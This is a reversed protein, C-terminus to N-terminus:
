EEMLATRWAATTRQAIDEKRRQDRLILHDITKQGQPGTAVYDFYSVPYLQGTRHVRDESQVRLDYFYSHSIYIVTHCATLNLGKHGASAAVFAPAPPTTRPDLLRTADARAAESQGGTIAGVYQYRLRLERVLRNLEPKFRCWMLLKLQPDLVLLEEIRTLLDDLKERGVEVLPETTTIPHDLLGVLVEEDIALGGLFGSTIQALRMVKTIAQPAISVRQEDLWAVMDDRMSKYVKWTEPTMAVSRIVPDLKPPLDLCEAKLRRLVYPKFRNQLDELNQWALVKPFPLGQAMVAYRARFLFYSKCSLISPHMINGQAFMDLPSHSIPTGNLLVVRGCKWRIAFASKTQKAQRNKIASSEDLVLLTKADCWHILEQLRTADRAYDYNTIIFRLRKEIAPHSWTWTRRRQHYVTVTAPLDFWLHKAMEGLDKNYWVDRVTAPALILVKHIIGREFLIQAADIVIKTKGMGMESFNAFYSHTILAQIAETQHVFPALRCRSLDIM